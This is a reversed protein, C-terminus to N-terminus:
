AGVGRLWEGIGVRIEDARAREEPTMREIGEKLSRQYALEDDDRRRQEAQHQRESEMLLRSKVRSLFKRDVTSAAAEARMADQLREDGFQQQLDRVFGLGGESVQGAKLDYWLTQADQEARSEEVRSQEAISPMPKANSGANSPANSGANSSANSPADNWRALAAKRAQAVRAGRRKDMGRVKFTHSTVPLILKADVLKQLARRKTGVPITAASPWAMDALRTLRYWLACTADDEYLDPYEDAWKWDHQVFRDDSM